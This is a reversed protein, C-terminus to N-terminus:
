VKPAPQAAAFAALGLAYWGVTRDPDGAAFREVDRRDIGGRLLCAAVATSRHALRPDMSLVHLAAPPGWGDTGQTHVASRPCGHPAFHVDWIGLLSRRAALVADRDGTLLGEVIFTEHVLDNPVLRGRAYRWNAPSPRDAGTAPDPVVGVGQTRLLTRRLGTAVSGDDGPAARAFRLRELLALALGSVNHVEFGPHHDAARDSYWVSVDGDARSCCTRSLLTAAAGRALDLARPQALVDYADMAALGAHATTYAYITGPPNVTGDAFADFPFSLGWGPSGDATSTSLAELRDLLPDLDDIRDPDITALRATARLALLVVDPEDTTRWAMSDLLAAAGSAADAALRDRSPAPTREPTCAALSAVVVAAALTRRM